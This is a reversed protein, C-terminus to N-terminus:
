ADTEGRALLFSVQSLSIAELSRLCVLLIGESNEVFHLDGTEVLRYIMLSRVGTMLAAQDVTLMTVENRCQQCWMVARPRNRVVLLRETEITMETRKKM